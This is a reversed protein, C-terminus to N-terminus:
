PLYRRSLLQMVVLVRHHQLKGTLLDPAAKRDHEARLPLSRSNM